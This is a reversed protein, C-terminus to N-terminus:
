RVLKEEAVDETSMLRLGEAALYDSVAIADAESLGRSQLADVLVQEAVPGVTLEDEVGEGTEILTQEGKVVVRLDSVSAMFAAVFLDRAKMGMVIGASKELLDGLALLTYTGLSRVEPGSMPRSGGGARQMVDKLSEVNQRIWYPLGAGGVPAKPPWGSDGRTGFGSAKRGGEEEWEDWWKDKSKSSAGYGRYSAGSGYDKPYGPTPSVYGSRDYSRGVETKKETPMLGEAMKRGIEDASM